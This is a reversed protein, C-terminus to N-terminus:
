NTQSLASRTRDDVTRKMKTLPQTLEYRPVRGIPTRCSLAPIELPTEVQVHLSIKEQVGVRLMAPNVESASETM